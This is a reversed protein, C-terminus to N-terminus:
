PAAAPAGRAESALRLAAEAIRRAAEPQGLAHAGTRLQVWRERDGFVAELKFPLLPLRYVRVAAGHELLYDTNQEEQDPRPHLIAMPLGIATCEAVTLGGGKGALLDMGAMVDHVDDRPGWVGVEHRSPVSISELAAKREADGGALATVELPRETRTLHGLGEAAAEPALGTAMYLIRPKAGGQIEALRARARREHEDARPRLAEFAPNVPIGTVDVKQPDAGLHTMYARAEETAVCFRECPQHFWMSHSFLDTTVTLHPFRAQGTRRLEAAIEAPFFHTHIAVDHRNQRLRNMLSRMCQHQLKDLMRDVLSQRSPARDYWSYMQGFVHPAGALIRTRATQYLEHLTDNMHDVVNIIECETDPRQDLAARIAEAARRHGSGTSEMHLLLVRNPRAHGDSIPPRPSM